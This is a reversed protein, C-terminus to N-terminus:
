QHVYKGVVKHALEMNVSNVFAHKHVFANCHIVLSERM